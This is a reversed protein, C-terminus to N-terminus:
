FKDAYTDSCGRLEAKKMRGTITFYKGHRGCPCDDEGLIIGEDETLLSHGPYSHPLVSVVQIIGKQGVKCISFDKPDRIIVDSYNSAHLHGYECEAYISGTQEVMGYHDLFHGIGCQEKLADKFAERSINLTVLKKWGGGTILFAEPLNLKLNLRKLESYLHQWVMFTFGFLLVRQGEYKQCFEKVVEVNLQMNEDLAYIRERALMSLGLIAAGRASFLNRDKVVKPSDIILMPLRQKGIFDSLIKILTKQQNSATDKDVFIKSVKQGTTGSSTMTKFVQSKDISMLDYEKFLRVPIFPLDYYSKVSDENFNLAQLIAAYEKCHLKHHKTLSLLEQTLLKQKEDKSLEYPSLKFFDELM